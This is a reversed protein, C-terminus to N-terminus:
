SPFVSVAEAKQRIEPLIRAIFANLIHGLDKAAIGKGNDEIEVRIADVEDLIRIEIKGQEKDLYKVSNGIINSIVRRLQEPDAIIQTEPSVLNYFNLEINKSELDLGVEEM